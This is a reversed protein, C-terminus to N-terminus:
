DEDLVKWHCTAHWRCALLDLCNKVKLPRSDFQCNSKQGEKSWLKHKLYEIPVHSGMKSM